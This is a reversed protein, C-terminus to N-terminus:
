YLYYSCVWGYWGEEYSYGYAWIHNSCGSGSDYAIRSPYFHHGINLGDVLSGSTSPTRRANLGNGSDTM